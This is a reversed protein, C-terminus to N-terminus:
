HYSVSLDVCPFILEIYFLCSTSLELSFPRNNLRMGLDDFVSAHSLSLNASLREGSNDRATVDM